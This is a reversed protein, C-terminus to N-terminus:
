CAKAQVEERGELGREVRLSQQFGDGLEGQGAAEFLARVVVEVGELVDELDDAADLALEPLGPEAGADRLVAYIPQAECGQEVVDGLGNGAALELPPHEEDGVVRQAGAEDAVDAAAQVEGGGVGVKRRGKGRKVQLYAEHVVGAGVVRGVPEGAGGSGEPLLERDQAPGVAEGRLARAELRLVELAVLFEAGLEEAGAARETGVGFRVVLGQGSVERWVQGM